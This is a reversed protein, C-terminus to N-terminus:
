IERLGALLRNLTTTDSDSYRRGDPDRGPDTEPALERREAGSRARRPLPHTGSRPTPVAAEAPRGASGAGPVDEVETVRPEDGDSLPTASGGTPTSNM